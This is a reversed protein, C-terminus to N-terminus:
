QQIMCAHLVNTQVRVAKTGVRVRDRKGIGRGKGEERERKGKGRGKGEERERKGKGRGKGEEGDRGWGETGIQQSDV